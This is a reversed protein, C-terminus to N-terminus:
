WGFSVHVGSGYYPGGYYGRYGGWYPRGYYYRAPYYGGYVVPPYVAVGHHGWGCHRHRWRASATDPVMGIALAGIVAVALVIRKFM